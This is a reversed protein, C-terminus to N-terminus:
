ARRRLAAPSILDAASFPREIIGYKATVDIMPQIAAAELYIGEDGKTARAVLQPELKLFSAMLPVMEARRANAYAASEAIVRVFRDVADRNKEIYDATAFMATMLFRPAIAEFSKGLIRVKGSDQAITSYPEGVTYADLRGELLAPLLASAPFEASRVSKFDGGNKEMWAANAIWDLDKLAPSGLTKGNLDRANVIPADKRVFMYAYPDASSYVGGPALLQFPM